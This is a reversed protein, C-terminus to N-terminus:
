STLTTPPAGLALTGNDLPEQKPPLRKVTLPAPKSSTHENKISEDKVALPQPTSFTHETKVSESRTLWPKAGLSKPTSFSKENEVDGRKPPPRKAAFLNPPIFTEEADETKCNPSPHMTSIRKPPSFPRENAVSARKPSLRNKSLHKPSPAIFIPESNASENIPPPNKKSPLYKSADFSFETGLSDHEIPPNENDSAKQQSALSEDDLSDSLMIVSQTARRRGHVVEEQEVDDDDDSDLSIIVNPIKSDRLPQTKRSDLPPQPKRSPVPDPRHKKPPSQSPSRSGSSQRRGGMDTAARSTQMRRGGNKKQKLQELAKKRKLTDKSSRRGHTGGRDDEDESESEEEYAYSGYEADYNTVPPPAKSKHLIDSAPPLEDEDDDDDLGVIQKRKRSKPHQLASTSAFLVDDDDEFSNVPANSIMKETPVKKLPENKKQQPLQQNQQREMEVGMLREREQSKLQAELNEVLRGYSEAREIFGFEKSARQQAKLAQLQLEAKGNSKAIKIVDNYIQMVNEYTVGKRTLVDGLLMLFETRGLQMPGTFLKLARQFADIAKDYKGCNIAARGLGRLIELHMEVSKNQILNRTDNIMLFELAEYDAFAEKYKQLLMYKEAREGLARWKGRINGPATRRINELQDTLSRIVGVAESIAQVQHLHPQIKKALTENELGETALKGSNKESKGVEIAIRYIDMAKQFKKFNHMIRGMIIFSDFKEDGHTHKKYFEHYETAYELAANLQTKKDEADPKLKSTTKYKPSLLCNNAFELQCVIFLSFAYLLPLCTGSPYTPERLSSLASMNQIKGNQEAKYELGLREDYKKMKDAERIMNDSWLIVKQDDPYEMFAEIIQDCYKLASQHDGDKSAYDFQRILARIDALSVGQKVVHTERGLSFITKNRPM